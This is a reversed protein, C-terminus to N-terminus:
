IAKVIKGKESMTMVPEVFASSRCFRSAQRPLSSFAPNRTDNCFIEIKLFFRLIRPTMRFSVPRLGSGEFISHM